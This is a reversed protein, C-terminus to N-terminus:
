TVVGKAIFHSEIVLESQDVHALNREELCAGHCVKELQGNPYLMYQFSYWQPKPVIACAAM